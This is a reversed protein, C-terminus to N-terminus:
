GTVTTTIITTTIITTTTTGSSSIILLSAGGGANGSATAAFTPVPLPEMREMDIVPLWTAANESPLGSEASTTGGGLVAALPFPGNVSLVSTQPLGGLLSDLAQLSEAADSGGGHLLVVLSTEYGDPSPRYM